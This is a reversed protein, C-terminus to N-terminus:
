YSYNKEEFDERTMTLKQCDLEDNNLAGYNTDPRYM